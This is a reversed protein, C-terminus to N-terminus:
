RREVLTGCFFNRTSNSSLTRTSATTVVVDFYDTSGNAYALCTVTVSAITSNSYVFTEKYIAANKRIALVLYEGASMGICEVSVSMFVRGPVTPLWRHNTTDYDANTDFEEVNWVVLNYSGGTISQTANKYAQFSTTNRVAQATPVATNGGSLAVDASFNNIRESGVTSLKVGAQLASIIEVGDGYLNMGYTGYQKYSMVNLYAIKYGTPTTYDSRSELIVYAGSDTSENQSTLRLDSFGSTAQGRILGRLTSGALWQISNATGGGQVITMGTGDLTVAGGGAVIKFLPTQGEMVLYNGGAYNGIGVGYKESAIGFSGNLNGIRVHETIASWPSGAHTFIQLYPANAQDATLLIGGKGSAGYDAVATGAYFTTPTGNALVCVYRYFTTQDSVSSVTLWNDKTGDKIHLRDGTAFLQSHTSPDKIDVNFTTPSTVTTVNNLLTGASKVVLSSGATTLVEQYTLITSRLEGRVHINEFEATGTENVKWGSTNAVYNFSQMTGRATLNNIEIDGSKLIQWGESGSSFNTSQLKQAISASTIVIGVGSGSYLANELRALRDLVSSHDSGRAVIDFIQNTKQEIRQLIELSM